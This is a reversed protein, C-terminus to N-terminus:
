SAEQTKKFATYATNVEEEGAKAYEMASEKAEEKSKREEFL